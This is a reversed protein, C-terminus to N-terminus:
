TGNIRCYPTGQAKYVTPFFHCMQGAMLLPEGSSPAEDAGEFAEIPDRITDFESDVALRLIISSVVIARLGDAPGSNPGDVQLERDTRGLLSPLYIFM